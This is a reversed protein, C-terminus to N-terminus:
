VKWSNGCNQCICFTETKTKTKTKEQGKAKKMFINSMGLTSIAVLGRTANYAHGGVGVGTKKTKGKSGVEVLQVNVNESQCKPCIM